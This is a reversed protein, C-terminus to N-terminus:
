HSAVAHFVVLWINIFPETVMYGWTVLFMGYLGWVLQWIWPIIKVVRKQICGSTGYESKTTYVNLHVRKTTHQNMTDQYNQFCDFARNSILVSNNSLFIDTPSHYNPISLKQFLINEIKAETNRIWFM